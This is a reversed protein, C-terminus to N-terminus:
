FLPFHPEEVLNFLCNLYGERVSVQFFWDKFFNYSEHFPWLLIRGALSECLIKFACVFVWSNAHLQIPVVNLVSSGVEFAFMAINSCIALPLSIIVNFWCSISLLSM